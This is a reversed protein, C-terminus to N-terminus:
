VHTDPWAGEYWKRLRVVFRKRSDEFQPSDSLGMHQLVVQALYNELLESTAREELMRLTPALYADYEDDPGASPDVVRIPDFENWLARIERWRQRSEAKDLRRVPVRGLAVTSRRPVADNRV